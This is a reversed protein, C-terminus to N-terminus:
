RESPVTRAADIEQNEAIKLAVLISIAMELENLGNDKNSLSEFIQKMKSDTM